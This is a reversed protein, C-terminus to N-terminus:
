GRVTHVPRSVIGERYPHPPKKSFRRHAISWAIGSLSPRDRESSHLGGASAAPVRVPGAMSDSGEQLLKRIQTSMRWATKYTVGLERQIQRASIEWQTAAMLCIAYFWLRLPTPSKHFITGATPHVHHGCHACCYSRRSLARYHKTMQGYRPCSTSLCAIGNPYLYDKLWELCATDNPFDREFDERMDRTYPRTTDMHLDRRM